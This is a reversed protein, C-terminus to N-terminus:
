NYNVTVVMTGAYSGLPQNANVHLTAGFQIVRSGTEDFSTVAGGSEEFHDVVMAEGRADTLRESQTTAISIGANPEGHIVLTAPSANSGAEIRSGGTASRTGDTRLTITGPSASTDLTGFALNSRTEVSLNRLVTATLPVIATAGFVHPSIAMIGAAFIMALIFHSRTTTRERM